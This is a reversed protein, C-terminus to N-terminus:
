FPLDDLDEVASLVDRGRRTTVLRQSEGEPDHRESRHVVPPLEPSPEALAQRLAAPLQERWNDKSAWVIGALDSPDKLNDDERIIIVRGHGLRSLFYGTELLVNPRIHCADPNDRDKSWICVAVRCDAAQKEFESWLNKGLAPQLLKGEKGTIGAVFTSVEHAFGSQPPDDSHVIFVNSGDIKNLLETQERSLNIQVAGAGDSVLNKLCAAGTRTLKYTIWGANPFGVVWNLSEAAAFVRRSEEASLGSMRPWESWEMDDPGNVHCGVTYGIFLLQKRIINASM